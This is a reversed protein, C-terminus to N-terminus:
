DGDPLEVRPTNKLLRVFNFLGILIMLGSAFGFVIPYGHHIAGYNQYLWEGVPPLILLLLGYFYLRPYDLIYAAASFGFLIFLGLIGSILLGPIRNFTLAVALGLLFMLGNIVLMVISFTRLRKLRPRAFVVQGIRPAVVYKRTLWIALYVLGWFPLFVASSWFDGLSESLFPAIAFMLLFCGLFVDWLGDAFTLQFAKREASKLSIPNQM